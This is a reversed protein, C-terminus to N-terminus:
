PVIWNPTWRGTPGTGPGAGDGGLGGVMLGIAVAEASIPVRTAGMIGPDETVATTHDLIPDQAHAVMDVEQPASVVVWM